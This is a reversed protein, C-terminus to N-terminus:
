EPITQLAKTKPAGAYARELLQRFEPTAKISEFDPDNEVQERTLHLHNPTDFFHQLVTLSREKQGAVCLYGAANYLICCHVHGKAEGNSNLGSSELAAEFQQRARDPEGARFLEAAYLLRAIADHPNLEVAKGAHEAALKFNRERVYYHCLSRHTDALPEAALSRKFADLAADGHGAHLEIEGLGRWAFAAAHPDPHQASLARQFAAVAAKDDHVYFRLHEGLAAWAAAETPFESTALEYLKRADPYEARTEAAGARGLLDNLSEHQAESGCVAVAFTAAILGPVFLISRM